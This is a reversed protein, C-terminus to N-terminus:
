KIRRSEYKLHFLISYYADQFGFLDFIVISKGVIKLLWLIHRIDDIM